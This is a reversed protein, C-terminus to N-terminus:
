RQLRSGRYLLADLHAALANASAKGTGNVVSTTM